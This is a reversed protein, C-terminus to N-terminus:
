LTIKKMNEIQFFLENVMLNILVHESYPLSKFHKECPCVYNFCKNNDRGVNVDLFSIKSEIEMEMTFKINNHRSKLYELFLHAPSRDKFLIFTIKFLIFLPSFNTPCQKLWIDEHHSLFINAFTPALPLGM